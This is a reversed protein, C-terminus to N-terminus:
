PKKAPNAVADPQLTSPPSVATAAPSHAGAAEIPKAEVMEFPGPDACPPTAMPEAVSKGAARAQALYRSAVKDQSQCLQHAAVKNSWAAKAAAATAAAKAEDSPAPLKAHATSLAAMALLAVRLHMSTKM